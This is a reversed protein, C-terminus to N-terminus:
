AAGRSKAEAVRARQLSAASRGGQYAAAKGRPRARGKTWMDVHNDKVTGLILHNPNCCPPTDCKHMVVMGQPIEGVFTQFFLRHAYAWVRSHSSCKGYKKTSWGGAWLWCGSETVPIYNNLANTHTPMTM